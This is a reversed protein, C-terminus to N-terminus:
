DKSKIYDSLTFQTGCYSEKGSINDTCGVLMYYKDISDEFANIPIRFVYGAHDYIDEGGFYESVDKRCTRVGSSAFYKKSDSNGFYIIPTQFNSPTGETIVWGSIILSDGDNIVSDVCGNCEFNTLESIQEIKKINQDLIEEPFEDDGMKVIVYDDMEKIYGPGPWSNMNIAVKRAEAVQEMSASEFSYGVTKALECVRSTSYSYHPEANHDHSFISMGIIQARLCANNLKNQYTGVFAIPKYIASSQSLDNNITDLCRLDEQCRVRDTYILRMTIQISSSLCLFVMTSLIIRSARKRAIQLCLVIDIALALSYVLQSRIIPENGAYITLLFPCIQLILTALVFLGKMPYRKKKCLVISFLTAVSSFFAYWGSYFIGIGLFGRKMHDIISMLCDNFSNVGWRIQGEIYSDESFWTKAILWYIVYSVVFLTIQKAVTGLIYKSSIQTQDHMWKLYSFIYCAIIFTIHYVVFIQYTGFSWIMCIISAFCCPYSHKFVGLWSFGVGCACLIYAWGMEYIQTNFYLQTVMIPYCYIVLSLGSCLIYHVKGVRFLLYGFIVGSICLLIYGFLASFWPNFWRIGFLWSTFFKGMRGSQLGYTTYPINIFPEADIRLNDNIIFSSYILLILACVLFHWWRYKCIYDVFRKWEETEINLRNRNNNIIKM